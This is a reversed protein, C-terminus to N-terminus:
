GSRKLIRLVQNLVRPTTLRSSHTVGRLPMLTIRPDGAFTSVASFPPILSDGRHPVTRDRYWVQGPHTAIPHASLIPQGLPLVRGGRGMRTAVTTPTATTTGYLSWTHGVEGAFRNPDTAPNVDLLLTNRFAPDNNVNQGGLFNYTAMFDAFSPIYQRIFLSPSARGHADEISSATITGGGPLNVSALGSTVVQYVANLIPYLGGESLSSGPGVFNDNLWNYAISVGDNAGGMSIFDNIRPLAPSGYGPSALYARTVFYGYSHSIVDV